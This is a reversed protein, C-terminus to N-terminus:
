RNIVDNNLIDSYYKITELYMKKLSFRDIISQRALSSM